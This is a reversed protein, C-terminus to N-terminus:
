TQINASENNNVYKRPIIITPKVSTPNCTAKLTSAFAHNLHSPMEDFYIFTKDMINALGFVSNKDTASRSEVEAFNDMGIINKMYTSFTSKGIEGPGSLYILYGSNYNFLGHALLTLFHAQREQTGLLYTFM